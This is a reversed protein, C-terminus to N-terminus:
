PPGIGRVQELKVGCDGPLDVKFQIELQNNSYIKIFSIYDDIVAKKLKINAHNLLKISNILKEKIFDANIILNDSTMITSLKSELQKKEETLEKIKISYVEKPVIDDLFNDSLKSIKKDIKKIDEQIRKKDEINKFAKAQVLPILQNTLKTIRTKNLLREQLAEIVQADIHDQRVRANNVCNKGNKCVYYYKYGDATKKRGTATFLEDCDGCYLKGLLLYPAEETNRTLKKADLKEQVRNFTNLDIIAPIASESKGGYNFNAEYIGAYKKNRLIDFISSSKFESNTRTKYGKDTLWVCIEKYSYGKLYMDFINRIAIAEHEVIQYHLTSDLTYGFPPVGGLSRGTIANEYMGKSAERALNFSYMEASSIMMGEILLHHPLDPESAYVKDHTEVISVIQVKYKRFEDRYIYFDATNRGFRDIKHVIVYDISKYHERVYDIMDDFEERGLVKRGTKAEDAFTRIIKIDNELAFKSIIRVQADISEHRQNHSSYRCYVVATKM